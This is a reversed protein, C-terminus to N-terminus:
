LLQLQLRRPPLLLRDLVLVLLGLPTQQEGQRLVDPLQLLLQRPILAAPAVVLTRHAHSRHQALLLNRHPQFFQVQVELAGDRLQQQDVRLLALLQERPLAGVLGPALFGELQLVHSPTNRDFAGKQTAREDESNRKTSVKKE